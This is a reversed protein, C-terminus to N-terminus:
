EALALNVDMETLRDFGYQARSADPGLPLWLSPLPGRDVEKLGELAARGSALSALVGDLQAQARASVTELRARARDRVAVVWGSQGEAEAQYSEFRKLAERAYAEEHAQSYLLALNGVLQGDRRKLGTRESVQLARRTAMVGVAHEDVWAAARGLREWFILEARPDKHELDIRLADLYREFAARMNGLDNTQEALRYHANGVNLLIQAETSPDQAELNL